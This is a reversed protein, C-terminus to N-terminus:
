KTGATITKATSVNQAQATKESSGIESATLAIIETSTMAQGQAMPRAVGVEMITAVARPACSPTKILFATARSIAPLTSTM